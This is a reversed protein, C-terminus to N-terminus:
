RSSPQPRWQPTDYMIQKARAVGADTAYFALDVNYRRTGTVFETSLLMVLTLGILSAMAIFLVVMVLSIGRRKNRTHDSMYERATM